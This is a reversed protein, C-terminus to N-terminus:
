VTVTSAFPLHKFISSIVLLMSIGLFLCIIFERRVITKYMICTCAGLFSLINYVILVSASYISLHPFSGSVVMNNKAIGKKLLFTSLRDLPTSWGPAMLHSRARQRKSAQIMTYKQMQFPM